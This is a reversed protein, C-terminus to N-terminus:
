RDPAAERSLVAYMVMDHYRGKWKMHEHLVGEPRLGLRELLRRAPVNDPETRAEIRNLHMRTWGFAMAAEAAEFAYGAGWFGRAFLFSLEALDHRPQWMEFGCLGIHRGDKLYVGWPAVQGERYRRAIAGAFALAEARTTAASLPVHRVVEPHSIYEYVEPADAEGLRRLVLRETELPPLETFLSAIALADRM